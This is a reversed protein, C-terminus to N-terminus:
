AEVKFIDFVSVEDNFICIKSCYQQLLDGDKGTKCGLMGRDYRYVSGIVKEYDRKNQAAWFVHDSFFAEAEEKSLDSRYCHRAMMHALQHAYGEPPEEMAWLTRMCPTLDDNFDKGMNNLGVSLPPLREIYSTVDLDQRIFETPKSQINRGSKIIILALGDLDDTLIKYSFGKPNWTGNCRWWSKTRYVSMDVPFNNDRAIMKVIEHCRSHVIYVPAIVHFGKSGSFYVLCKCDYIGEIESVVDVMDRYANDLSSSDIDFYLYCGKISGDEDYDQVTAYAEEKEDHTSLLQGIQQETLLMNGKHYGDKTWQFFRM